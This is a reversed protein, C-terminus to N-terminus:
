EAAETISTAMIIAAMPDVHSISYVVNDEQWIIQNVGLDSAAGEDLSIQGKDRPAPLLHEELYTVVQYPLEISEANEM